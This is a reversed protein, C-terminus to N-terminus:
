NLKDKNKNIHQRIFKRVEKSADSDELKCLKKFIEWENEEILVGIRKIKENNNM